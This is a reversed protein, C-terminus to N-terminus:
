SIMRAASWKQFRKSMHQLLPIYTNKWIKSKLLGTKPKGNRNTRNYIHYM